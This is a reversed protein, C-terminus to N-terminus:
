AASGSSGCPMETLVRLEAKVVSSCSRFIGLSYLVRVIGVSSMEGTMLLKQYHNDAANANANAIDLSNLLM